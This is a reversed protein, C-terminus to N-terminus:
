SVGIASQVIPACLYTLLEPQPEGILPEYTTVVSMNVCPTLSTDRVRPTYQQAVKLKAFSISGPPYNDVRVFRRSWRLTVTLITPTSVDESDCHALAVCRSNTAVYPAEGPLPLCVLLDN